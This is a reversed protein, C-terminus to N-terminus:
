GSAEVAGAVTQAYSKNKGAMLVALQEIEDDPKIQKKLDRVENELKTNKELMKNELQTNTELMSLADKELNNIQELIDEIVVKSETVSTKLINITQDKETSEKSLTGIKDNLSKVHGNLSELQAMLTLERDKQEQDSKIHKAVPLSKSTISLDRKLVTATDAIHKDDIHQRLYRESSYSEGCYICLNSDHSSAIHLKLDNESDCKFECNEEKCICIDKMQSHKTM